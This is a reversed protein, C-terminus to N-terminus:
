AFLVRVKAEDFMRFEEVKMSMLDEKVMGVLREASSDGDNRGVTEGLLRKMGAIDDRSSM